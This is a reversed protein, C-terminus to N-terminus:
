PSKQFNPATMAAKLDAAIGAFVAAGERELSQAEGWAYAKTAPSAALKILSQLRTAYAQPGIDVPTTM